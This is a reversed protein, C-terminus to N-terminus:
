GSLPQPQGEIVLSRTHSGGCFRRYPVRRRQVDPDTLPSPPMDEGGGSGGLTRM